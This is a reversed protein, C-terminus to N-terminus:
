PVLRGSQVLVRPPPFTAITESRNFDIAVIAGNVVVPTGIFTGDSLSGNFSTVTTPNTCSTHTSTGSFSVSLTAVLLDPSITLTGFAASGSRVEPPRNCGSTAEATYAGTGTVASVTFRPTSDPQVPVPEVTLTVSIRTDESLGPAFDKHSHLTLSGSLASATGGAVTITVDAFAGPDVVSIARALYTGPTTGATFFGTASLTGAGATLVWNVRPDTTGRVTAALQRSAGPALTVSAPNVSVTIPACHNALATERREESGSYLPSYAYYCVIQLDTVSREDLTVREGGVEFQATAYVSRGFQISGTRDLDFRDVRSGGTYGDGNLDFQSYDRRAPQVPVDAADFYRAVFMDLDNESFSGNGDADLLATRIPATAPTPVDAADLSLVAAYADLFRGFPLDRANERVAAIAEASSRNNRLEPSLLWLYSLLGAVQPAAFSTGSECRGPAVLSFLICEGVAHVNAGRDSFASTSLAAPNVGPRTSGVILTNFAPPLTDVGASHTDAALAILEDTSAALSPFEPRSLPPAYLGGIGAFNLSPDDTTSISAPSGYLALGFGGYITSLPDVADNGASVAIAFDNWRRHTAEKWTLALYARDLGSMLTSPIDAPSCTDCSDTFGLSQNVVVKGTPLSQLQAALQLAVGGYSIGHVSVRRLDLCRQFPNAGTLPGADFNAALTTLVDFGHTDASGDGALTGPVVSPFEADWDTGIQGFYDQVVVPIPRCGDLLRQGAGAANWAAPFRAPLLHHVVQVNELTSMGPVAASEDFPLVQRAPQQGASAARIGPSAAFVAAQLALDAATNQRPVAVVIALVGPQMAVIGGNISVLAANLEGATADAAIRADIRTLIVGRSDIDAPAAPAPRLSTLVERALATPTGRLRVGELVRFAISGRQGGPNTAVVTVVGTPVAPPVVFSVVSGTAKVVVAPLGAVTIRVNKAGFGNGAITVTDGPRGAQPTIASVRDAARAPTASAPLLIAVALLCVTLRPNMLRHM